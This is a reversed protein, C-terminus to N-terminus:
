VEISASSVPRPSGSCTGASSTLGFKKAVSPTLGARPRANRVPAAAGSSSRLAITLSRSHRVDSSASGAITPCDMVMSPRGRVTTPTSGGSKLKLGTIRIPASGSASMKRGLRQGPSVPLLANRKRSPRMFDPTVRSRASASNVASTFSGDITGAPASASAPANAGFARVSARVTPKCSYPVSDTRVSSSIRSPATDNTSRIAQTLTAFRCIARRVARRPSSDTRM